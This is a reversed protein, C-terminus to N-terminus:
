QPVKYVGAGSGPMSAFAVEAMKEKSLGEYAPYEKTVRAVFDPVQDAPLLSIVAGGWGGGTQRAGLAGNKLCIDRLEEVQPVTADFLDRLSEHSGNLLRGLEEAGANAKSPDSAIENCLEAFRAVRLSEEFTHKARKYLQFRECRVPIFDLYTKEFDPQVHWLCVGDRGQEMGKLSPRRVAGRCCAPQLTGACRRRSRAARTLEHHGSRAPASAPAPYGRTVPPLLPAVGLQGHWACDMGGTRLGMRHESAIALKVVDGKTLGTISNAALFMIVSAVVFAASSSLGAGPPVNGAMMLDLGAPPKGDRAGDPFFRALCELIAVKAYNEWGGGENVPVLGADWGKDTHKLEFSAPKFKDDVNAIRVRLDTTPRLAILIDFLSYDVHEGLINVRGPARAIYTPKAGYAKEFRSVLDAWRAEEKPLTQAPYVDKLDHFVNLPQAAAM